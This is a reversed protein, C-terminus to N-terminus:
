GVKGDSDLDAPEWFTTWISIHKSVLEEYEPSGEKWRRIEALKRACQEWDEQEVYGDNDLDRVRFQNTLKKKMTESLM